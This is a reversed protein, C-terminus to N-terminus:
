AGHVAIHYKILNGLYMEGYSTSIGHKSQRPHGNPLIQYYFNETTVSQFSKLAVDFYIM